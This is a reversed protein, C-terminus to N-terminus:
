KISLKVSESIVCFDYCLKYFIQFCVSLSRHVKKTWFLQSLYLIIKKTCTSLHTAVTAIVGFTVQSSRRGINWVTEWRSTWATPWALLGFQWIGCLRWWRPTSSYSISASLYLPLSPLSLFLSRLTARFCQRFSFLPRWGPHSRSNRDAHWGAPRRKVQSM